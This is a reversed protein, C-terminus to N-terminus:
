GQQSRGFRRLTEVEILRFAAALRASWASAGAPTRIEDQRIEIMAAPLGRREGHTPITYDIHHDIPYPANDGLKFDGARRLAGLLLAALRRDRWHSIGVQWPRLRGNLIPTFSHISILLTPRHSRADLMKGIADHYPQFLADIRSSRETSSLRRNGPISIGASREAMSEAHNLPRNCDIVLRSYGTLVLPSDLHAALRRAVDAAGPDWAIHARLLDRELGLSRLRQPIRNSAHDCVLVVHGCGDPNVTEVPSPEDPGLLAPVETATGPDMM